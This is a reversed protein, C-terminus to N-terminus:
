KGQTSEPRVRRSPGHRDRRRKTHCRQFIMTRSDAQGVGYGPNVNGEYRPSLAAPHKAM